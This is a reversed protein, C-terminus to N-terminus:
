GEDELKQATEQILKWAQEVHRKETWLQGVVLRLTYKGRLRTHTIHLRGDANVQHLLRENFANCEDESWGHHEPNYRFCVLGFPVPALQQFDRSQQVEQELWQAWELHQRLIKQLGEVGYSRM